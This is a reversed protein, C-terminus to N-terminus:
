QKVRPAMMARMERDNLMHDFLLGCTDDFQWHVQAAQPGAPSYIRITEGTMLGHLPVGLLRAGAPSLNGITADFTSDRSKVHVLARSPMRNDRMLM